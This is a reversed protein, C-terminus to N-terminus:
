PGGNEKYWKYLPAPLEEASSVGFAQIRKADTVIVAFVEGTKMNVAFAAVDSGCFHPACGEGILFGGEITGTSAVGIRDVFATYRDRLILKLRNGIQEDQIIDAPLKSALAVYESQKRDPTSTTAISNDSRGITSVEPAPSDNRPFQIASLKWSLLGHRSLLMVIPADASGEKRVEVAFSDFGIYRTATVATFKRKLASQRDQAPIGLAPREGQMIAALSEPTVLSDIIPGAVASALVAGLAEFPNSDKTSIVKKALSANFSGRLSEKLAPFDVYAALRIPDNQEAAEKMSNAALYPLAYFWSALALILLAAAAYVVNRRRSGNM